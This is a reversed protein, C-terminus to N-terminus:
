VHHEILPLCLLLFVKDLVTTVLRAAVVARNSVFIVTRGGDLMTTVVGVDCILSRSVSSCSRVFVLGRSKFDIKSKQKLQM